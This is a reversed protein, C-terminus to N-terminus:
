AFSEHSGHAVSLSVSAAVRVMPGKSMGPNKELRIKASKDTDGCNRNCTVEKGELADLMLRIEPAEFMQPGHTARQEERM